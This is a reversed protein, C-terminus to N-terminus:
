SSEGGLFSPMVYAAIGENSSLLSAFEASLNECQSIYHLTPQLLCSPGRQDDGKM